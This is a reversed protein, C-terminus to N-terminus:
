TQHSMTSLLCITSSTNLPGIVGTVTSFDKIVVQSSCCVIALSGIGAGTLFLLTVTTITRSSPLRSALTEM